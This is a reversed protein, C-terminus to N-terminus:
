DWAKTFPFEGTNTSAAGISTNGPRMQSSLEITVSDQAIESIEMLNVYFTYRGQLQWLNYNLCLLNGEQDSFEFKRLVILSSNVETRPDEGGGM